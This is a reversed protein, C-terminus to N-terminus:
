CCYGQPTCNTVNICLWADGFVDCSPNERCTIKEPEVQQQSSVGLLNMLKQMM